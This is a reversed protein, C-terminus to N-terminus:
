VTVRCEDETHIGLLNARRRLCKSCWFKLAQESGVEPVTIDNIAIGDGKAWQWSCHSLKSSFVTHHKGRLCRAAVPLVRGRLDELEEHLTSVLRGLDGVVEEKPASALTSEKLSEAMTELAQETLHAGMKNDPKRGHVAIRLDKLTLGLEEPGGSRLHAARHGLMAWVSVGALALRVAGTVRATHPPLWLGPLGAVNALERYFQAMDGKELPSGNTKVLLPWPATGDEAFSDRFRMSTEVVRHMALVPCSADPCSCPLTRTKGLAEVDAKSAPLDWHAIGCPGEGPAAPSFSVATVLAAGSEIERTAWSAAVIAADLGAAPWSPTRAAQLKASPMGCLVDLPLVDARRDPGKGRRAARSCDAMKLQLFPTWEYSRELHGRKMAGLYNPASRYGGKLLLAAGLELKAATLPYPALGRAAARMPWWKKWAVRFKRSTAAFVCARLRKKAVVDEETNDVGEKSGRTYKKRVPARKRFPHRGAGGRDSVSSVSDSGSDSAMELVPAKRKAGLRMATTCRSKRVAQIGPFAQRPTVSGTPFEEDHPFNRSLCPTPPFAFDLGSDAGSFM